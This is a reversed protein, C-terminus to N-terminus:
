MHEGMHGFILKVKPFRDLVGNTVIGLIHMNLRDAYGLASFDLWPRGSWMQEKILKTSIRPHLYVPADLDNAAKWFADYEPQDYFLMTNGDPGSSQFDNLIVGVFGKKKTMCRTLEEAAQQPDHMSVAAFAAFRTPNKMVEQELRDNALTAQAEAKARDAIGQCGSSVFSLVMFDVGNEDMQRLRMDHIDLLERTLRDGTGAAVFKGPNNNELEEPITWCEELAIKGLM